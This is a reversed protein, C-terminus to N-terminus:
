IKKIELAEALAAKVQRTAPLKHKLILEKVLLGMRMKRAKERSKRMYAAHAGRCKDCARGDPGDHCYYVYATHTGHRFNKPPEPLPVRDWDVNTM